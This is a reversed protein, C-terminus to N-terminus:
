PRVLRLTKVTTGTSPGPNMGDSCPVFRIYVNWRGPPGDGNDTPQGFQDYYSEAVKETYVCQMGIMTAPSTGTPDVSTPDILPVMRHRIDYWEPNVTDMCDGNSDAMCNGNWTWDSGGNAAVMDHFGQIVSSHTEGSKPEIEDGGEFLVPGADAPCGWIWDILDSNGCNDGEPCFWCRWSSADVCPSANYPENGGGVLPDTQVGEQNPPGSQTKIEVVQGMNSNPGVAYYGTYDPGTYAQWNTGPVDCGGAGLCQDAPDKQADAMPPYSPEWNYPEFLDEGPDFHDNPNNPNDLWRDALAVPLPCVGSGAEVVEAAAVTVVDVQGFGLLGAFVTRVANDRAAENRVRVRVKHEDLLVDVDEDRVDAVTGNVTNKAAYEKAWDRPRDADTPDTIFSAAGALAAADAVRQSETRRGMLVGVDIALAVMGLLIFIGLLVFVLTAGQQDRLRNGIPSGHKSM